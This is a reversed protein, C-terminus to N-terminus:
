NLIIICFAFVYIFYCKVPQCSSENPGFSSNIHWYIIIMPESLPKEDQRRWAMIQVLAPMNKIPVRPIFKLSIKILIWINENLFICKLIDNAFHRQNQTLRLINIEELWEGDHRWQYGSMRKKKYFKMHVPVAPFWQANIQNKKQIYPHGTQYLVLLILM